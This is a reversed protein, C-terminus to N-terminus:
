FIQKNSNNMRYNGVENNQNADDIVEDRYYYSGLTM